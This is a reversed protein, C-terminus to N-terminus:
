KTGIGEDSIMGEAKAIMEKCCKRVLPTDFRSWSLDYIRQFTKTMERNLEKLRTNEAELREAEAFIAQRAGMGEWRDTNGTGTM